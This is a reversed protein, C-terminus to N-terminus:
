DGKTKWTGRGRIEREVIMMVLTHTNKREVNRQDRGASLVRVYTCQLSVRARRGIVMIIRHQARRGEVEEGSLQKEFDEGDRRVDIVGTRRRARGSRLKDADGERATM